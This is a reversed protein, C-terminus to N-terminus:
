RNPAGQIISEYSTDPNGYIETTITSLVPPGPPVEVIKIDAGYDAGIKELDTRLRLVIEHSQADRLSKDVLNIKIDAVNDGNRLYYHRVMGNFDMPSAM